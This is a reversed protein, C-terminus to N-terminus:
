VIEKQMRQFEAVGADTLRYARTWHQMGTSFDKSKMQLESEALGMRELAECSKMLFVNPFRYTRDLMGLLKMQPETLPKVKKPKSKSAAM